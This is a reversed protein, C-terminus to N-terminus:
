NGTSDSPFEEMPCYVKITKDMEATILRFGSKDFSLGLIGAECDMSGPQPPTKIEQVSAGSFWDWLRLVGNDTGGALLGDENVALTNVPINVTEQVDLHSNQYNLVFTGHPLAFRKCRDSAGSAFSFEKPMLSTLTRVGKKHHTLTTITQGMRIDWLRITSDMSGTIIQPDCVSALVSSVADRHGTLTHICKKTRIDWLKATSDRSGTVIIDLEPHIDVSWVGHLHGHYQRNVANTELDWGKVCRDEGVSFLIPHRKSIKLDRIPSVHGTLTMKLSGTPLDWIKITRDASGSAFFANSYDVSICRVWGTHGSIVRKLRWPGHKPPEVWQESLQPSEMEINQVL